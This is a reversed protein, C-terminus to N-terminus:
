SKALASCATYLKRPDLAQSIVTRCIRMERKSLLVVQHGALRLVDPEIVMCYMVADPLIIRGEVPM